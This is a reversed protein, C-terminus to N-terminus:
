TKNVQIENYYDRNHFVMKLTLKVPHIITFEPTTEVANSHIWGKFLTSTGTKEGSQNVKDIEEWLYYFSHNIQSQPTPTISSPVTILALPTVHAISRKTMGPFEAVILRSYTILTSGAIGILEDEVLTIRATKRMHQVPLKGVNIIKLDHNVKNRVKAVEEWTKQLNQKRSKGNLSM